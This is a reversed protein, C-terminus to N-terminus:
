VDRYRSVQIGMHRCRYLLINAYRCTQIYRHSRVDIYRDIDIDTGIYALDIDIGNDTNPDLDMDPRIDLDTDSYM